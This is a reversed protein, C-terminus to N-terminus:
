AKAGAALARERTAAAEAAQDAGRTPWGQLHDQVIEALAALWTPNDNLCPVYHFEQGGAAKFADRGEM